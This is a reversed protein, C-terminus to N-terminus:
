IAHWPEVTWGDSSVLVVNQGLATEWCLAPRIPRNVVSAGGTLVCLLTTPEVTALRNAHRGSQQSMDILRLEGSSCDLRAFIADSQPHRKVAADDERHEAHTLQQPKLVPCSVQM